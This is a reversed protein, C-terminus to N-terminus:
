KSGSTLNRWKHDIKEVGSKLLRSHRATDASAWSKHDDKSSPGMPWKLENHDVTEVEVKAPLNRLKRPQLRHSQHKQDAKSSPGMPWKLENHDVTEVEVKAPLNRLKRPQLQHSQHKHYDKAVQVGQDVKAVQWRMHSWRESSPGM